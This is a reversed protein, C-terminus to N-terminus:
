HRTRKGGEMKLTDEGFICEMMRIVSHGRAKEPNDIGWKELKHLEQQITRKLFWPGERLVSMEPYLVRVRGHPSRGENELRVQIEKKSPDVDEVIAQKEIGLMFSGFVVTCGNEGDIRRELAPAISDQIELVIKGNVEKKVKGISIHEKLHKRQVGEKLMTLQYRLLHHEWMQEWFLPRYFIGIRQRMEGRSNPHSRSKGYCSWALGCERKNNFTCSRGRWAEGTARREKAIDSIWGYAQLAAREFDPADKEIIFDKYPTEVVLEFDELNTGKWAEPYQKKDVSNLIKWLLWVQFDKLTPPLVDAPDGKITREVIRKNKFDLEDIKGYLPYSRKKDGHIFPVYANAVSIDFFIKDNMKIKRLEEMKRELWPQLYLQCARMSNEDEDMAFEEFTDMDTLELSGSADGATSKLNAIFRHFLDGVHYKGPLITANGYGYLIDHLAAVPCFAANVVNSVTPFPDFPPEGQKFTEGLLVNYRPRQWIEKPIRVMM